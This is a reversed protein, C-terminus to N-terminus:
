SKGKWANLAVKVSRRMEAFFDSGTKKLYFHQGVNEAEGLFNGSKILSKARESFMEEFDEANLRQYSDKSYISKEPFRPTISLNRGHETMHGFCLMTVPFVLDPPDFMERHIEYNEMIDGIYCSGVGLSEAAIVATQAAILADCSALMFDAEAPQEFERSNKSCLEPVGSINYYDYWRQMDALFILVFPAKAIFPQNDCTVVLREKKKQDAVELISYLMMNGATPARMACRIILEKEEDTIIRDAYVRQSKRNLITEITSNM